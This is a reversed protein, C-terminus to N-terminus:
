EPAGADVAPAAAGGDEAAEPAADAAPAEEAAGALRTIERHLKLVTVWRGERYLWGELRVGLTQEPQRLWVSMMPQKKAMADLTVQDGPMTYDPLAPGVPRVAVETYGEKARAILFAPAEALFKPVINATYAAHLAAGREGFVATFDAPTALCAQLAARVKAEDGSKAVVLVQDEFHYMLARPEDPRRPAPREEEVPDAKCAPLGLAPALLALCLLPTRM